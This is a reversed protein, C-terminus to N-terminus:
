LLEVGVIWIAVLDIYPTVFVTLEHNSVDMLSEAHITILQIILLIQGITM